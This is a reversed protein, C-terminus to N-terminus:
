QHVWSSVPLSSRVRSVVILLLRSRRDSFYLSGEILEEECGRAIEFTDLHSLNRGPTSAKTVFALAAM